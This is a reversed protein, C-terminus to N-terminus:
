RKKRADTEQHGDWTGGSRSVPAMMMVAENMPAETPMGAPEGEADTRIVTIRVAITIVIVGVIVRIVVGIIVPAREDIIGHVEGTSAMEPMVAGEVMAATETVM